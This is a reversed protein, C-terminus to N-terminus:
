CHTPFLGEPSVCPPKKKAIKASIEAITEFYVLIHSPFLATQVYHQFFMNIINFACIFLSSDLPSLGPPLFAAPPYKRAPLQSSLLSNQRITCFARNAITRITRAFTASLFISPYFICMGPFAFCCLFSLAISSRDPSRAPAKKNM